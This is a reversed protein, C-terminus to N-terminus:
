EEPEAAEAEAKLGEVLAPSTKIFERAKEKSARKEDANKARFYGFSAKAMNIVLNNVIKKPAPTGSFESIKGDEDEVQWPISNDSKVNQMAIAHLGRNIVDLLKAHDGGVANQAEQLSSVVIDAGTKFVTVEEMTNLDFVTDQVKFTKPVASASTEM